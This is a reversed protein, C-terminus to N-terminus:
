ANLLQQFTFGPNRMEIENRDSEAQAASAYAFMKEEYDNIAAAITEFGKNALNDALILADMLGINVGQGAFPQMLHAADGILTIPLPRNKKWPSILPFKRIPLSVFFTTAQVLQRYQNSWGDLRNLLFKVAIEAHQFDPQQRREWETPSKFIVGYSLSGNNSPNAVLLNGGHAVMLRNGNCLQFFDPCNTEPSAIDGQIIHTGTEEVAGDAVFQRSKSMGGNAIIVVDATAETKNEFALQWRGDEAELGTLKRNWCVTGADLSDLLMTRLVNRNIEPNDFQNEPTPNRASIIEGKENAFSIGMPLSLNYYAQLLGARKMAEQGSGKHLDLTGGWIRAQPDKDREYVSVDAGNQQLLKAMTLGVPGAGVVAIKKDRLLSM